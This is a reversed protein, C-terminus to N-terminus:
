IGSQEKTYVDAYTQDSQILIFTGQSPILIGVDDEYLESINSVAIRIQTTPLAASAGLGSSYGGFQIPYVEKEDLMEMCESRTMQIPLVLKLTSVKQFMRFKEYADLWSVQDIGIKKLHLFIKKQEAALRIKDKGCTLKFREYENLAIM